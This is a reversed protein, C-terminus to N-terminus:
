EEGDDVATTGDWNSPDEMENRRAQARVERERMLRAGDRMAVERALDVETVFDRPIRDPNVADAAATRAHLNAINATTRAMMAEHAVNQAYRATMQARAEAEVAQVATYQAVDFRAARREIDDLRVATRYHLFSVCERRAERCREQDIYMTPSLWKIYEIAIGLGM